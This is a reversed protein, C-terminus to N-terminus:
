PCLTCRSCRGFQPRNSHRYHLACLPGQSLTLRGVHHAILVSHVLRRTSHCHLLVAFRYHFHLFAQLIHAVAARSQVKLRSFAQYFGWHVQSSTLHLLRIFACPVAVKAGAPLGDFQVLPFSFDVIWNQVNSSGRFALITTANDSNFGVYGQVGVLCSTVLPRSRSPVARRM